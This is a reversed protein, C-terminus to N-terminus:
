TLPQSLSKETSHPSLSFFYNLMYFTAYHLMASRHSWVEVSSMLAENESLIFLPQYFITTSHRTFTTLKDHSLCTTVTPINHLMYICQEQLICRQPNFPKM